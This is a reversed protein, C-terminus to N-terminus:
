RNRQYSDIHGTVRSLVYTHETWLQNHGTSFVTSITCTRWSSHSQKYRPHYNYLTSPHSYDSAVITQRRFPSFSCDRGRFYEWKGFNHGFGTTLAQFKIVGVYYQELEKAWKQCRRANKRGRVAKPISIIFPHRYVFYCPLCLVVLRFLFVHM